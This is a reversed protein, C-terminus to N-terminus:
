ASRTLKKQRPKRWHSPIITRGARLENATFCHVCFNRAVWKPLSKVPPRFWGKNEVINNMIAILRDRPDKYKVGFCHATYAQVVTPAKPLEGLIAAGEFAAEILGLQTDSFASALTDYMTQLDFYRKKDDFWDDVRSYPKLLENLKVQDYLRVYSILCAGLACVTCNREIRDIHKQADSKSHVPLKANKAVAGYTGTEIAKLNDLHELVDKAIALAKRPDHKAM